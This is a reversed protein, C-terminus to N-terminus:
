KANGILEPLWTRMGGNAQFLTFDPSEREAQEFYRFDVAIFAADLTILLHGLSGSFGSLYNRNAGLQKFIDEGTASVFIGALGQEELRTRLKAVRAETGMSSM